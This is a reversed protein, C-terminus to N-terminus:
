GKLHRLLLLFLLRSIARLSVGPSSFVGDVTPSAPSFDTPSVIIGTRPASRGCEPYLPHSLRGIFYVVRWARETCVGPRFTLRVGGRKGSLM